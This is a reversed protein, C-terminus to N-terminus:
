QIVPYYDAVDVVNRRGETAALWHLLAIQDADRFIYEMGSVGRVMSAPGAYRKPEMDTVSTIASFTQEESFHEVSEVAEWCLEITGIKVNM